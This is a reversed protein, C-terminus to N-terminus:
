DVADVDSSSLIFACARAMEDWAAVATKVDASLIISDRNSLDGSEMKVVVVVVVGNIGVDDFLAHKEPRVKERSAAM